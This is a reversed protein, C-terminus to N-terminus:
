YYNELEFYEFYEFGTRVLHRRGVMGRMGGRERSSGASGAEGTTDGTGCISEAVSAEGPSVRARGCDWGTSSQHKEPASPPTLLSSEAGSNNVGGAETPPARGIGVHVTALAAPRGEAKKECM